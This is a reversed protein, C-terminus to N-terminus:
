RSSAQIALLLYCYHDSLYSPCFFRGFCTFHRISILLNVFAADQRNYESFVSSHINTTTSPIQQMHQMHRELIAKPTIYQTKKSVGHVSHQLSTFPVGVEHKPPHQNMRLGSVLFGTHQIKDSLEIGEPM